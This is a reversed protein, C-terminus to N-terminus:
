RASYDRNPTCRLVLADNRATVGDPGIQEILAARLTAAEDPPLIILRSYTFLQGM